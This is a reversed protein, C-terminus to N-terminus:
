RQNKRLYFIAFSIFIILLLACIGLGVALGIVKANMSSPPQSSANTTVFLSNTTVVNLSNYFQQVLNIYTQVYTAYPELSNDGLTRGGSLGYNASINQQFIPDNSINLIALGIQLQLNPDMSAPVVIGYFDNIPTDISYSQFLPTKGDISNLTALIQYRPDTVTQSSLSVIAAQVQGNLLAAM